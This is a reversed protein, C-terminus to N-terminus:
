AQQEELTEALEELTRQIAQLQTDLFRNFDGLPDGQRVLKELFARMQERGRKSACALGVGTLGM